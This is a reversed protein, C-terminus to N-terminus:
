YPKKGKSDEHIEFMEYFKPAIHEFVYNSLKSDEDAIEFAMKEISMKHNEFYERENLGTYYFDKYFSYEHCEYGTYWFLLKGDSLLANAYIKKKGDKKRGFGILFPDSM